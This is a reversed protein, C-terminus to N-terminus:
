AVSLGFAPSPCVLPPHRVSRPQTVSLGPTLCRFSRPPCVSRPHCGSRLLCGSRPHCGSTPLCGSRSFNPPVGFTPTVEFILPPLGSVRFTPPVGFFLPSVRFFRRYRLIPPLAFVPLGDFTAPDMSSWLLSLFKTIPGGGRSKLPHLSASPIANGHAIMGSM